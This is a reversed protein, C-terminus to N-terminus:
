RRGNTRRAGSKVSSQPQTGAKAAHRRYMKVFEKAEALTTPYPVPNGDAGYIRQLPFGQEVLFRVKAWQKDDGLSPAKFHRGLNVAEGGCHPCRRRDPADVGGPRKFSRRCAFCAYAVSYSSSQASNGM